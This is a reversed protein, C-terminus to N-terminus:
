WCHYWTIRLGCLDPGRLAACAWPSGMRNFRQRFADRDFLPLPLPEPPSLLSPSCQPVSTDIQSSRFSAPRLDSLSADTHRTSGPPALRATHASAANDWRRGSPRSPSPAVGCRREADIWCKVYPMASQMDGAASPVRHRTTSRGTQKEAPSGASFGWGNRGGPPRSGSAASTSPSVSASGGVLAKSLKFPCLLICDVWAM